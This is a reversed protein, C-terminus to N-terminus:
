LKTIKYVDNEDNKMDLKWYLEIYTQGMTESMIKKTNRRVKQYKQINEDSRHHHLHKYCEKKEGITNKHVMKWWWTDNPECKNERIVGFVEISMKWIYTSIEIWM